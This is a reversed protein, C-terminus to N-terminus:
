TCKLSGPRVSHSPASVPLLANVAPPPVNNKSIGSFEVGHVTFAAFKSAFASASAAEITGIEGQPTTQDRAIGRRSASSASRPTTPNLANM